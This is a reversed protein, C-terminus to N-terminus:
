LPGDPAEPLHVAEFVPGNSGTLPLQANPIGLLRSERQADAVRLPVSKGVTQVVIM